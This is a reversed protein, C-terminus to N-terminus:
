TKPIWIDELQSTNQVNLEGVLIELELPYLETKGSESHSPQIGHGFACFLYEQYHEPIEHYSWSLM